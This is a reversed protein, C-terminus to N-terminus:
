KFQIDRVFRVREESTNCLEHISCSTNIFEVAFVSFFSLLKKLHEDEAVDKGRKSTGKIPSSSLKNGKRQIFREPSGSM